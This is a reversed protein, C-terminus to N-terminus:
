ADRRGLLERTLNAKETPMTQNWEHGCSPDGGCKFAILSWGSGLPSMGTYIPEAVCRCRAPAAKKQSSRRPKM